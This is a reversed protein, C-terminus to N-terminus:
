VHSDQQVGTAKVLEHEGQYVELQESLASKGIIEHHYSKCVFYLVTQIVLMLLLLHCLLLLCLVGSAIKWVLGVHFLRLLVMSFLFQILFFFVSLMFTIILSLGKKGKILENSKMMAKIGSSDELMSVVNALQWVAALYIFGVIYLIGIVLLTAMGYINEGITLAWIFLVIGAVVNYIFFAAFTCLFTIVLRKWVKAVAGMAKKLTVERSTYISAITHVVASTSVLSFILFFVFYILKFIIFSAWEISITNILRKQHPTGFKTRSIRESYFLIGGFMVQSVEMNILFILSLPLILTLTILSFIKRWSFMIMYSEKFVGFFGLFQMKEQDREM